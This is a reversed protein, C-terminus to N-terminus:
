RREYRVRVARAGVREFRLLGQLAVPILALLALLAAVRYPRRFARTVADKVVDHLSTELESLDRRDEEDAGRGARDFAGDIDPLEGNPTRIVARALYFSLTLKTRVPIPASIVRRAGDKIAEDRVDHLGSALL